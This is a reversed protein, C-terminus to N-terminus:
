DHNKMSVQGRTIEMTGSLAIWLIRKIAYFDKGARTPFSEQYIDKDIDNNYVIREVAGYGAHRRMFM